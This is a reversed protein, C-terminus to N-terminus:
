KLAGATLGSTIHKQAIIYIIVIPVLSITLGAIFLNWQTNTSSRFVFLNMPITRLQEQGLLINPLIFDNWSWLFYLIGLTVASPKILPFVIQIMSRLMGCGDIAAAEELERPVSKLFGTFTMIGFACNLGSFIIALGIRSNNLHFKSAQISIAIMVAHFPIVQGIVFVMYIINSLKGRLHSIGYAALFSVTLTLLVSCLTIIASNIFSTGYRMTKMAVTFNDLYLSKPFSLFNTLIEKNPKFANMVILIIPLIFIFGFILLLLGKINEKRKNM